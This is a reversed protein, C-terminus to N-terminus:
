KYFWEKKKMGTMSMLVWFGFHWLLERLGELVVDGLDSFRGSWVNRRSKRTSKKFKNNEHLWIFEITHTRCMSSNFIRFTAKMRTEFPKSLSFSRFCEIFTLNELYNPNRFNCLRTSQLIQCHYLVVLCVTKCFHKGGFRGHSIKYM